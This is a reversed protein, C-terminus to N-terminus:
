IKQRKLTNSFVQSVLIHFLFFFEHGLLATDQGHIYYSTTDHLMVDCGEIGREGTVSIKFTKSKKEKM